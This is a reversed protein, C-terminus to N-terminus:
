TIVAGRKIDVRDSVKFQDFLDLLADIGNEFKYMLEGKYIPVVTLFATNESDSEKRLVYSSEGLTLSPLLTCACFGTNPSYNTLSNESESNAITHGFGFWINNHHVYRALDKLLRIPWYHNEDYFSMKDLPWGKPLIIILEMYRPEDSDEPMVMPKASMGMTVLVEYRRFLSSKVHCIDIHLDDSVIEHFIQHISGINKSIHDSIAELDIHKTMIM